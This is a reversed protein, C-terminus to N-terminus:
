RLVKIPVTSEVESLSDEPWSQGKWTAKIYITVNTLPFIEYIEEGTTPDKQGTDCIEVIDGKSPPTYTATAIGSADTTAKVSKQDGNLNGLGGGYVCGQSISASYGSIYFLIARQAMAGKKYGYLRARLISINPSTKRLPDLSQVVSPHATLELVVSHTSPGFIAGHGPANNRSCGYFGAIVIILITFIIKRM